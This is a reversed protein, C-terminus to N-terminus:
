FEHQGLPGRAFEEDEHREAAIEQAIEQAQQRLEEYKLEKVSEEIAKKEDAVLM